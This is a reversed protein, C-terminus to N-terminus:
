VPRTQMETGTPKKAEGKVVISQSMPADPTDM